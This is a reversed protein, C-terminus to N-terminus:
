RGVLRLFRLYLLASNVKFEKKKTMQRRIEIMRGKGRRGKKEGGGWLASGGKSMCLGVCEKM